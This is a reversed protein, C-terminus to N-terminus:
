DNQLLEEPKREPQKKIVGFGKMKLNDLILVSEEVSAYFCDAFSLKKLSRSERFKQLAPILYTYNLGEREFAAM